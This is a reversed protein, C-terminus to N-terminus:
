EDVKDITSSENYYWIQRDMKASTHRFMRNRLGNTNVSLLITDTENKHKMTMWLM